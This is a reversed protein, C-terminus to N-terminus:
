TSRGPAISALEELVAATMAGAFLDHQRDLRRLARVAADVDPRGLELAAMVRELEERLARDPTAVSASAISSLSDTSDTSIGTSVHAGADNGTVLQYRTGPVMLRM